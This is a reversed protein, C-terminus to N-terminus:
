IKETSLQSKLCEEVHLDPKSSPKLTLPRLNSTLICNPLSITNEKRPIQPVLHLFETKQPTKSYHVVTSLASSSAKQTERQDNLSVNSCHLFSRDETSHTANQSFDSLSNKQRFLNKIIM